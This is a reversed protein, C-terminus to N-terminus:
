SHRRGRWRWRLRDAVSRVFYHSSRFKPALKWDLHASGPRQSLTNGYSPGFPIALTSCLPIDTFGLCLTSTKTSSFTSQCSIAPLRPMYPCTHSSPQEGSSTVRSLSDNDDQLAALCIGRVPQKSDGIKIKVKLLIGVLVDHLARWPADISAWGQACDLSSITIKRLKANQSIYRHKFDFPAQALGHLQFMKFVTISLM